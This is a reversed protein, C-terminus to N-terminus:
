DIDRRAQHTGSFPALYVSAFPRLPNVGATRASYGDTQPLRDSRVTRKAAGGAVTQLHGVGGLRSTPKGINGFGPGLHM